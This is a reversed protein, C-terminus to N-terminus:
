AAERNLAQCEACEADDPNPQPQAAAGRLILKVSELSSRVMYSGSRREKRRKVKEARPDVPAIM